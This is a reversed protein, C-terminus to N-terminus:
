QILPKRCVPTIFYFLFILLHINIIFIWFTVPNIHLQWKWICNRTQTPRSDLTLPTTLSHRWIIPIEIKKATAAAFRWQKETPPSHHFSLLALHSDPYLSADAYRISTAARSCCAPYTPVRTSLIQHGKAHMTVEDDNERIRIWKEIFHHGACAWGMRLWNHLGPWTTTGSKNTSQRQEPTGVHASIGWWRLKEGGLCCHLHAQLQRRRWAYAHKNSMATLIRM